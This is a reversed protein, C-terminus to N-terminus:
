ECGTGQSEDYAYEVGPFRSSITDIQRAATSSCMLAEEYVATSAFNIIQTSTEPDMYGPGCGDKAVEELAGLDGDTEVTIGCINCFAMHGAEPILVLRKQAVDTSGYGIRVTTPSVVNDELGGMVLASAVHTGSEVGGAAMPVIVKVGQQDGLGSIAVGGASHGGLGIRDPALLGKLFSLDGSQDQVAAILAMTDAAQDASLLAGCGGELVDGYMIGPNDACLVVFGRSAWHTFLKHSAARFSGTGHVYIIVPYPGYTEDIPLNSYSDIQLSPDDPDPDSDPVVERTDIWDNPMGVESGPVAPYWAATTLGNITLTTSGAPWPGRESPDVPIPRLKIDACDTTENNDEDTDCAALLACLSILVVLLSFAIRRKVHRQM